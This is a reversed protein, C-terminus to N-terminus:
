NTHKQCRLFCGHRINCTKEVSGTSRRTESGTVEEKKDGVEKKEDALIIIVIIVERRQQM